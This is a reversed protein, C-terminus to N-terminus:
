IMKSYHHRLASKYKRMKAYFIEVKIGGYLTSAFTNKYKEYTSYM